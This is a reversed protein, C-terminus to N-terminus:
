DTLSINQLECDKQFRKYAYDYLQIDMQNYEIIKKMLSEEILRRNKQKNINSKITKGLKLNLQKEMLIISKEFEELVGVCHCNDLNKKAQELSVESIFLPEFADAMFRTHLNDFHDLEAEFFTELSLYELKMERRLFFLNSITREIPNRFFVIPKINPPMLKIAKYPYHGLFLKNKQLRKESLKSIENYHHYLLKDRNMDKINPYMQSQPIAKELMERFSTGATKPIHIFFITEQNTNEYQIPVVALKELPIQDPECVVEVQHLNIDMQEIDFIYGCAGTPHIKKKALDERIEKAVVTKKVIGNVLLSVTIPKDTNKAKAWGSIFVDNIQDVYGIYNDKM